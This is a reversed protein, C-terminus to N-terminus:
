REKKFLEQQLLKATELLKKSILALELARIRSKEVAQFQQQSAEKLRHCAEVQKRLDEEAM